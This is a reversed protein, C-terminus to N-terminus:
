FNVLPENKPIGSGKLYPAPEVRELIAVGFGIVNKFAVHFSDSRYIVNSKQPTGCVEFKSCTKVKLDPM